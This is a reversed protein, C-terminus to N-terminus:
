MGIIGCSDVLNPKSDPNAFREDFASGPDLTCKIVGDAKYLHTYGSELLATTKPTFAPAKTGGVGPSLSLAASPILFILLMSTRGSQRLLTAMRKM